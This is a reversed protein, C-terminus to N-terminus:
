RGAFSLSMRRNARRSTSPLITGPSLVRARSFTTSRIMGQRRPAPVSCSSPSSDAIELGFRRLIRVAQVFHGVVDRASGRRQRAGICLCGPPVPVLAVDLEVQRLQDVPHLVPGYLVFVRNRTARDVDVDRMVPHDDLGLRAPEGALRVLWLGTVPLAWFLLEVAVDQVLDPLFEAREIPVWLVPGVLRPGSDDRVAARPMAPPVCM